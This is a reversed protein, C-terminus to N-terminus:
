LMDNKNVSLGNRRHLESLGWMTVGNLLVEDYEKIKPIPNYPILEKKNLDYVHYYSLIDKSPFDEVSEIKALFVLFKIAGFLKVIASLGGSQWGIRVSHYPVYNLDDPKVDGLRTNLIVFRNKEKSLMWTKIPNFEKKLAFPYCLGALHGFAIMAPVRFSIPEFGSVTVTPMQNRRKVFSIDTGIIPIVCNYPLDDFSNIDFDVKKGTKKECRKIQKKLVEKSKNEPVIISDDEIKQSSYEPRGQKNFYGKLKGALNFDIEVQANRYVLDPPQIKLKNVAAVIYGNKKLRAEISGGFRRNNCTRCVFRIELWGGLVRPIIHGKTLKHADGEQSNLGCFICRTVNYEDEAM